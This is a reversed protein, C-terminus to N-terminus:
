ARNVQKMYGTPLDYNTVQNLVVAISRSKLKSARSFKEMRQQAEASLNQTHSVVAKEYQSILDMKQSIGAAFKGLRQHVQDAIIDQVMSNIGDAFIMKDFSVLVKGIKTSIQQLNEPDPGQEQLDINTAIVM